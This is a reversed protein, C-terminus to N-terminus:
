IWLLEFMDTDQITGEVMLYLLRDYLQNIELQIVKLELTELGSIPMEDGILMKISDFM